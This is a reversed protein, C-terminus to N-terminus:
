MLNQMGTGGVESATLVAAIAADAENVFLLGDIVTSSVNGGSAYGKLPGMNGAGAYRAASLTAGLTAVTENSFTLAQIVNSAVSGTYGGMVYLKTLSSAGMPINGSASALANTATGTADNSFTVTGIITSVTGGNIYGGAMYGKTTSQGGAGQQMATGLANANVADAETSFTLDDITTVCSSAAGNTNGGMMYGKTTSYSGTTDGRSQSLVASINAQSESYFTLASITTGGNEIGGVYGKKEGCVGGNNQHNTTAALVNAIAETFFNLRHIKTDSGGWVYGASPSWNPSADRVIWAGTGIAMIDLFNYITSAAYRTYSNTSNYITDTGVVAKVILTQSATVAFRYWLGSAAVPLSLVITGGAGTNDFTKGRDGTVITYDATKATVGLGEVDRSFIQWNTADYRCIAVMGPYLTYLVTSAQKITLVNATGNHKIEFATGESATATDLTVNRDAGNPDLDQYLKSTNDLTVDGSMSLLRFLTSSGLIGGVADPKWLSISSVVGGACVVLALRANATTWGTTNIQITGTSDIEVYNSATNTVVIDTAGAYQGNTSGVRWAFAAIDIKLAAGSVAKQVRGRDTGLSYVDDLDTNIQQLRTATIQDAVNWNTSKRPM